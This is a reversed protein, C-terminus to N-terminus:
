DVGTQGQIGLDELTAILKQMPHFQDPYEPYHNVRDVQAISKAQELELWPVFLAREGQANIIFAMPRETPYFAFGSYYLVYAPEFLVVGSLSQAIVLDSFAACRRQYEDALIRM